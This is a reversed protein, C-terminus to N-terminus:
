DLARLMRQLAFHRYSVMALEQVEKWDIRDQVDLAIWGNHGMYAPIRYRKEFTLMAQMDAGVWFSLNLRGEHHYASVFSKKGARFTPDGFTTSENAEPLALCFKRLPGLVEKARKSVMPDFVEPDITKTPPKIVPQKSLEAALKKPAVMVYAERVRLAIQQWDLGRNLHVGLWGRPGVYPPVFYHESEDESYHQQSGPPAALWLALRGDGHHNVVYTAFTKGRARFDPSGHALVETTESFWLCIERVAAAIDKAM